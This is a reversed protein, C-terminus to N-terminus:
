NFKGFVIDDPLENKRIGNSPFHTALSDGIAKICNQIGEAFHGKQFSHILISAKENWYEDGAKTYIAEDGYIAFSKKEMAIYLLVGNRLQTKDMGLHKFIEVAREMTTDTPCDGEIYVRIEGSTKKEVDQISKVIHKKEHKTLIQNKKSFFDFM